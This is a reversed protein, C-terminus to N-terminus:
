SQPKPQKKAKEIDDVHKRCAIRYGYILDGVSGGVGGGLVPVLGRKTKLAYAVGAGVGTVCFM